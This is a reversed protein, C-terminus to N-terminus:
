HRRWSGNDYVAFLIPTFDSSRAQNYLDNLCTKVTSSRLLFGRECPQIRACFGKEEELAWGLQTWVGDNSGWLYGFGRVAAHRGAPPNGRSPISSVQDWEDLFGTWTGDNFLVYMRDTDQRWLLCGGDFHQQAAWTIHAKATPCGLDAIAWTGVFASDIATQCSPKPPVAAVPVTAVGVNLRVYEVAVWASTGGALTVKLWTSGSDRGKVMLREGSHTKKVIPYNTGPGERANLTDVEVVAVPKTSAPATAPRPTAGPASSRWAPTDTPSSQATSASRAQRPPATSVAKYAITKIVALVLSLLVVAILCAIACGKIQKCRAEKQRHKELAELAERARSAEETVDKIHRELEQKSDIESSM